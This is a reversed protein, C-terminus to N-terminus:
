RDADPFGQFQSSVVNVDRTFQVRLMTCTQSLRLRLFTDVLDLCLEKDLRHEIQYRLVVLFQPLVQRSRAFVRLLADVRRDGLHLRHKQLVQVLALQLAVDIHSLRLDFPVFFSVLNLDVIGLQAARRVWINVPFSLADVLRIDLQIRPEFKDVLETLSEIGVALDQVLFVDVVVRM